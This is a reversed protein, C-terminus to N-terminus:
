EKGHRFQFAIYALAVGDNPPPQDSLGETYQVLNEFDDPEMDDLLREMQPLVDPRFQMGALKLRDTRESM